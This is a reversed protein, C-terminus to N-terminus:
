NFKTEKHVATRSLSRCLTDANVENRKRATDGFVSCFQHNIRVTDGFKDKVADVRAQAVYAWVCLVDSFYTVEVASM